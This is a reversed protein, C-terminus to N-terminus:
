LHTATPKERRKNIEEHVAYVEAALSVLVEHQRRIVTLLEQPVYPKNMNELYVELDKIQKAYLEMQTEFEGILTAFYKHNTSLYQSNPVNFGGSASWGDSRVTRYVKEADSILTITDKKLVEVSKSNKKLVVDLKQLNVKLNGDLEANIEEIPEVAFRPQTNEDRITKQERVFKKFSEVLTMWEMPILNEKSNKTVLNEGGPFGEGGLGKPPQQPAPQSAPAAPQNFTLGGLTSATSSPQGFFSPTQGLTGLTPLSTNQQTQPTSFLSPSGFQFSM